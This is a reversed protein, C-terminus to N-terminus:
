TENKKGVMSMKDPLPLPRGPLLVNWYMWRFALKGLHNARTEKLLSFPGVVPVPYKGPLPETDYNFDILLGKGDGSEIFCNAHGDFSGTMKKGAIHQLFNGVFIDVAFHAVSGAKSAPIDSADGVAFINPHVTSLLTHKDVPVYNLDDGLGSRSVFEAGMNLPITVLLDFPVTREDYSVLSKSTSDIREVLFDTEVAINRDHLMSGLHASSIPKTFAGSLPTVYVMEVRDRIGRQRFYADSLFTFELPAVPCKIPMDTIHVVFRGGDFKELAGALAQAGDFSYFDFISERWQPGLMGETQDPRPTAGSAIVLYDYPVQRGDALIVCNGDADVRDVDGIVFNVGDPLFTHRSRSVQAASYVGFPLFLYGPQYPHVDDRDIVAIEWDDTKLERRLKNVIMTGATGGGVVVLRKM